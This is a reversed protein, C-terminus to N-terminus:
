YQLVQQQQWFILRESFLCRQCFILVVNASGGYKDVSAKHVASVGHSVVDDDDDDDDDDAAAAAADHSEVRMSRHQWNERQSRIREYLKKLPGEAIFVVSCAWICRFWSLIFNSFFRSFVLLM